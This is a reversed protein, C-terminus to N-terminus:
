GHGNQAQHEKVNGWVIVGLGTAIGVAAGVIAAIVAAPNDLYLIALAINGFMGVLYAMGLTWKRWGKM